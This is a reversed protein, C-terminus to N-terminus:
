LSSTLYDRITVPPPGADIVNDLWTDNAAQISAVLTAKDDAEIYLALESQISLMFASGMAQATAEDVGETVMILYLTNVQLQDVVNSRFRKGERLGEMPTYLKNRVKTAAVSDDEAYWSITLSRSQVIGNADRVYTYDERVVLNTGVVEGNVLSALEFYDCRTVEGQSFTLAPQLRISLSRIYDVATIDETGDETMFARIKPPSAPGSHDGIISGPACPHNPAQDVSGDLLAKDGAVLEDEFMVFFEDGHSFVGLLTASIASDLIQEHLVGVDLLGSPV